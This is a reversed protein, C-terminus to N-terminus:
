DLADLSDMGHQAQWRGGVQLCLVHDEFMAISHLESITKELKNVEEQLEDTIGKAEKEMDQRRDKLPQLAKEQAKEVMAIVSRFVAEVDRWESDIQEQSRFFLWGCDPLARKEPQMKFVTGKPITRITSINANATQRSTIKRSHM